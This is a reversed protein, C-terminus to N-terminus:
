MVIMIYGITDNSKKVKLVKQFMTMEFRDLLYTATLDSLPDINRSFLRLDIDFTEKCNEVVCFLIPQIPLVLNM